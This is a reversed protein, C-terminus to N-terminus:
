RVREVEITVYDESFEYRIVEIPLKMNDVIRNVREVLLNLLPAPIPIKWIRARDIAVHPRRSEVVIEIRGELPVAFPGLRVTGSGSYGEPTIEMGSIEIQGQFREQVRRLVIDRFEHESYRRILHTERAGDMYRALREAFTQIFAPLVKEAWRFLPNGASLTRIGSATLSSKLTELRSLEEKISSLPSAPFRSALQDFFFNAKNVDKLDYLAAPAAQAAVLAALAPDESEKLIQEYLEVAFAFDGTSKYIEVIQQKASTGWSGGPDRRIVEQFSQLAEELRGLYKMCWGEQFLSPLTLGGQPDALVASHFAEAAQDMAYLKIWLAGLKSQLEQREPGAGLSLLRKKLEEAKRRHNRGAELESILERAVKVVKLDSSERLVERYFREAQDPAQNRQHAYGLRLKLLAGEQAAQKAGLRRPIFAAGAMAEKMGSVLADAAGLAAPRSGQLGQALFSVMVQTDVVTRERDSASLTGQAYQLTAVTKLDLEEQAMASVLTEDVLILAAEAQGVGTASDLVSLSTKLNQLNKDLLFRNYLAFFLVVGGLVLPIRFWIFLRRM